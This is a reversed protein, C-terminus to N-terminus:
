PFAEFIAAIVKIESANESHISNLIFFIYKGLLSNKRIKLGLVESIIKNTTM